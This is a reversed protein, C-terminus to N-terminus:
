LRRRRQQGSRVRRVAVAPSGPAGRDSTGQGYADYPLPRSGGPAGRDGTGQRYADFPWPQSRPAGDPEGQQDALNAPM